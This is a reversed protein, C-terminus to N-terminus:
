SRENKVEVSSPPSNEEREPRSVELFSGLFASFLLTHPGWLSDPGQPSSFLMKDSGPNLGRVTRGTVVYFLNQLHTLIDKMSLASIKNPQRQERLSM